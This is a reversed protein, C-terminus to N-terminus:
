HERQQENSDKKLFGANKLREKIGENRLPTAVAATEISKAATTTSIRQFFRLLAEESTYTRGGLRVVELRIGRVGRSAWRFPTAVHVRKGGSRPPLHKPVDTLPFTTETFPDIPM